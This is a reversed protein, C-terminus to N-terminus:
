QTANLTRALSARMIRSGRAFGAFGQLSHLAQHKCLKWRHIGQSLYRHIACRLAILMAFQLMGHALLFNFAHQAALVQQCCAWKLNRLHQELKNHSEKSALSSNVLM